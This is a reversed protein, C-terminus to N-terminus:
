LVEGIFPAIHAGEERTHIGRADRAPHNGNWQQERQQNGRRDSFVGVNIIL